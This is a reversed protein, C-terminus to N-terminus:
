PFSCVRSDGTFHPVQTLHIVYDSSADSVVTCRSYLVCHGDTSAWSSNANRDRFAVATCRSTMNPLEGSKACLAECEALTQDYFEALMTFDQPLIDFGTDNMTTMRGCHGRTWKSQWDATTPGVITITGVEVIYDMFSNCRFGSACWCMRYTGGPATVPTSGLSLTLSDLKIIDLDQKSADIITDNMATMRGGGHQAKRTVTFKGSNPFRPAPTNPLRTTQGCTDLILVTDGVHLHHGLIGDITCPQGSVCTRRDSFDPRL